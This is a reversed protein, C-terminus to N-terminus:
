CATCHRHSCCHPPCGHLLERRPSHRPRSKCIHRTQTSGKPLDFRFPCRVSTSLQAYQSDPEPGKVHVMGHRTRQHIVGHCGPQRSRWLTGALPHELPAHTRRKPTIVLPSRNGSTISLNYVDMSSAVRSITYIWVHMPSSAIDQVLANRIAMLIMYWYQHQLGAVRHPTRRHRNSATSKGRSRVVKGEMKEDREEEEECYTRAVEEIRKNM